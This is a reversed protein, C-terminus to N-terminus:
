DIHKMNAVAENIDIDTVVDMNMVNESKRVHSNETHKFAGNEYTYIVGSDMVGRTFCYYKGGILEAFIYESDIPNSLIDTMDMERIEDLPVDVGKICVYRQKVTDFYMFDGMAQWGFTSLFCDEKCYSGRLRYLEVSRGNQVGYLSNHDEVGFYGNGGITIQKFSGYDLLNTDWMNATDDIIEMKEDKDSFIVLDTIRHSVGYWARAPMEVIIYTEEKGDGDYDNPYATILVPEIVDESIYDSFKSVYEDYTIETEGTEPDVLKGEAALIDMDKMVKKYIETDKIFAVAKEALGGIDKTGEYNEIFKYDIFENGPSVEVLLAGEDYNKDSFVLGPSTQVFEEAQSTTKESATESLTQVEPEETTTIVSTEFTTIVSPLTRVSEQTIEPAEKKAACGALMAAALIACIMKSMKM